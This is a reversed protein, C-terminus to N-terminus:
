IGFGLGVWMSPFGNKGPVVDKAITYRLNTFLNFALLKAQGGVMFHVGSSKIKNENMFDVLTDTAQGAFDQSAADELSMSSFADEIFSVSVSPTVTHSNFGGGGYIQAKALFPVSVGVIKKRISYYQSARAWPFEGETVGLSTGSTFNYLNGGFEFDAQLDIFPLADIYFYFGLMGANDLSGPVVNVDGSTTAAPTASFLDQNGYLGFGALGYAFQLSVVIIFIRGLFQKM